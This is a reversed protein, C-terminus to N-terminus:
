AKRGSRPEEEDEEEEDAEEDEDELDEEEDDQDADMGYGLRDLAAEIEDTLLLMRVVEDLRDEEPVARAQDLMTQWEEPGADNRALLGLALLESIEEPSLSEVLDVFEQYAPDDTTTDLAESTAEGGIEDEDEEILVAEALDVEAAKDLLDSLRELSITLMTVEHELSYLIYARDHSPKVLLRCAASGDTVSRPTKLALPGQPANGDVRGTFETAALCDSMRRAFGIGGPPPPLRRAAACDRAAKGDPDPCSHIAGEGTTM